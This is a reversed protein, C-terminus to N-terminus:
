STPKCPVYIKSTFLLVTQSCTFCLLYLFSKNNGLQWAFIYLKETWHSSLFFTGYAKTDTFTTSGEKEKGLIWYKFSRFRRKWMENKETSTLSDLLRKQELLVFLTFLIKTLAPSEIYLKCVTVRFHLQSFLWLHRM